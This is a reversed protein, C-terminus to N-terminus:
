TAPISYSSTGFRSRKLQQIAVLMTSLQVKDVVMMFRAVSGEDMATKGMM